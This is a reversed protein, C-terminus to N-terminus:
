SIQRGREIVHLPINVALACEFAGSDLCLTM